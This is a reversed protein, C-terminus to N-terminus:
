GASAPALRVREGDALKEVGSRVITEGGHLGSVVEVRDAGEGAADAGGGAAAAERTVAAPPALAVASRRLTGDVVEYVYAAEGSRAVASRPVYLKPKAALAQRDMEAGLFKVTTSMDPVLRADADDITVKVQVVAKVRDATPVIQRLKGHYVRSPVADINIEAPQGIKLRAIYSENIDAEVELSRPDAIRVIAGTSQQSTFGGPAVMEGVLVNKQIVVGTLPSRIVTYSLQAESSRLRAEATGVEAAAVAEQTRATDLSSQPSAGGAVLKEQRGRERTADAMKAQMELLNARNQDIAARLDASDLVAIVDGERVRDGEDVRLDIVRGIIKAGVAARNRAYTYGTATLVTSAETPTVVQVTATEVKPLLFPAPALYAWAGAAAAVALAILWGIWRRRPRYELDDPAMRLASLDPRLAAPRAPVAAPSEQDLSPTSL